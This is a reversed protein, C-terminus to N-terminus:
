NRCLGNPDIHCGDMYLSGLGDDQGSLQDLWGLLWEWMGDLLGAGRGPGEAADPDLPLAFAAGATCLAFVLLMVISGVKRSM